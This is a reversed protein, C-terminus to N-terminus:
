GSTISSLLTSNRHEALPALNLTMPDLREGRWLNVTWFTSFAAGFVVPGRSAPEGSDDGCSPGRFARGARGGAVGPTTPQNARFTPRLVSTTGEFGTPSAGFALRVVAAIDAVM